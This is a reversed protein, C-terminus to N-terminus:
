DGGHWRFQVVDFGRGCGRAQHAHGHDLAREEGHRLARAHIAHEVCAAVGEVDALGAVELLADVVVGLGGAHGLAEAAHDVLGDRHLDDGGMGLGFGEEELGVEDLAELGAEVDHEAVVLAVRPQHEGLVVGERLDGLMAAGTAAFAAVVAGEGGGPGDVLGDGGHLADEEEAGTLVRHEGVAGAGAQQVLDLAAGGGADAPDLGGFVAVVDVLGFGEEAALGVVDLAFEGALHFGGGLVEFELTGGGDAVADAAEGM